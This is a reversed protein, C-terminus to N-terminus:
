DPLVGQRTASATVLDRLLQPDVQWDVPVKITKKNLSYDALRERFDDIVDSDYPAILIHRAFVGLGFVYEGGLRVMPQNWAIVVQATPFADTISALISRVTEQKIADHEALYDYVSAFRQASTSGRSFQVLANAHTRSFGHEQQLFAMQDPYRRGAVKKMERHWHSMPKGYRKEIAPFLAARDTRDAVGPDYIRSEGIGAMTVFHDFPSRLEACERQCQAGNQRSRGDHSVLRYIEITPVGRWSSSGKEDVSRDGKGNVGVYGATVASAETEIEVASIGDCDL